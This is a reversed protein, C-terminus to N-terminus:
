GLQPNMLAFAFLVDHGEKLGVSSSSQGSRKASRELARRRVLINQKGDVHRLSGRQESGFRDRHGASREVLVLSEVQDNALDMDACHWRFVLIVGDAKRLGIPAQVRVLGAIARLLGM